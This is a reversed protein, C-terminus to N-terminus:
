VYLYKVWFRFYKIEIYQNIFFLDVLIILNWSNAHGWFNSKDKLLEERRNM